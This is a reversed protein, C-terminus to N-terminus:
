LPKRLKNMDILKNFILGMENMELRAVNVVMGGIWRHERIRIREDIMDYRMDYLTNTRAGPIMIM